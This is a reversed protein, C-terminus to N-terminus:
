SRADDSVYELADAYRPFARDSNSLAVTFIAISGAASELASGATTLRLPTHATPHMRTSTRPVEHMPGEGNEKDFNVTSPSASASEVGLTNIRKRHPQDQVEV